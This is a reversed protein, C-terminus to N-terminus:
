VLGLTELTNNLYHSAEKVFADVILRGHRATSPRPDDGSVADEALTVERDLPLTSLDVTEPAYVLQLSTEGLASHNAVLLKDPLIDFEALAWFHCDSYKENYEEAVEKLIDIHPEGAHGTLCVVIKFGTEMLQQFYEQCTLRILGESFELSHMKFDAGPYSKILNAAQYVPPLVIGGVKKALDTALHHAKIGDLGVANHHGHYELAGWPIYAIPRSQCISEIQVPRMREYYGWFSESEM